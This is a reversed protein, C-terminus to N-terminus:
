LEEQEEIGYEELDLLDLGVHKRLIHVREEYKWIGVLKSISSTEMAMIDESWKGCWRGYVDHTRLLKHYVVFSYMRNARELSYFALAEGFTPQEADKEWAEFYRSSRSAQGLKESVRSKLTIDGPIMCKGWRQIPIDIDLPTKLCDFIAALCDYHNSPHDIEVKKIAISQYLHEKNKKEKPSMRLSPFRLALVRISAREYLMTSINAFPAKKSRVKHGIEGIAREVTAQSGFRISGNWSIHTPVHLLQWICLRCRSINDPDNHVYLREFEELFSKM